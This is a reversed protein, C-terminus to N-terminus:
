AAIIFPLTSAIWPTTFQSAAAETRKVGRPTTREM